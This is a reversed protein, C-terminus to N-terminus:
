RAPTNRRLSELFRWLVAPRDPGLSLIVERAAADVQGLVAQLADTEPQDSAYRHQTRRVADVVHALWAPGWAEYVVLAGPSRWAFYVMEAQAETLVRDAWDGSDCLYRLGTASEVNELHHEWCPPGVVCAPCRPHAQDDVERVRWPPPISVDM